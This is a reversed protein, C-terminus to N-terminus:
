VPLPTGFYGAALRVGFWIAVLGGGAALVARVAYRRSATSAMGPRYIRSATLTGDDTVRGLVTLPDGDAAVGEEYRYEEGPVSRHLNTGVTGPQPGDAPCVHTEVMPFTITAERPDVRVPGSGDDFDFPVGGSDVERTLWNDDSQGAVGRISFEWTWCVAPHSLAPSHAETTAEVEGTVIMPGATSPVTATQTEEARRFRDVLRAHSVAVALAVWGGVLPVTNFFLSWADRRGSFRYETGYVGIVGVSVVGVTAALLLWGIPTNWKTDFDGSSKAQAYSAAFFLGVFALVVVLVYWGLLSAM